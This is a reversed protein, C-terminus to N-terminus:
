YTQPIKNNYNNLREATYSEPVGHVAAHWTKRDKMILWLTQEFEYGNIGDLWRMRKAGKEEQM